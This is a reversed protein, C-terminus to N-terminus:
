PQFRPFAEGFSIWRRANHVETGIGPILVLILLIIGVAYLLYGFREYHRYDIVAVVFAGCGGFVLFYIQTIYLEPTGAARGTSYLNIVGILSIAIVLGFLVWDM